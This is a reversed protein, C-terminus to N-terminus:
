RLHELTIRHRTVDVTFYVTRPPKSPISVAYYDTQPVRPFDTPSRALFIDLAEKIEDWREFGEMFESVDNLFEETEVVQWYPWGDPTTSPVGISGSRKGL